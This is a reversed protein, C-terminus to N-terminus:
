GAQATMAVADTAPGDAGRGDDTRALVLWILVMAALFFGLRMRM